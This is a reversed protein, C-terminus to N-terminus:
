KEKRPKADETTEVSYPLLLSGCPDGNLNTILRCFRIDEENKYITGCGSCKLIM